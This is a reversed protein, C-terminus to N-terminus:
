NEKKTMYRIFYRSSEMLDLPLNITVDSKVAHRVEGAQALSMHKVKYRTRLTGSSGNQKESLVKFHYEIKAIRM